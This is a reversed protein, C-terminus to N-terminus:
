RTPPSHHPVSPSIARGFSSSISFRTHNNNNSNTANNVGLPESNLRETTINNNKTNALELNTPTPTPATGQRSRKKRTPEEKPQDGTVPVSSSSLSRKKKTVVVEELEEKQTKREKQLEQFKEAKEKTIEDIFM